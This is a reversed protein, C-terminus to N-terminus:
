DPVEVLGWYGKVSELALLRHLLKIDADLSLYPGTASLNADIPNLNISELLDLHYERIVELQHEYGDDGPRISANHPANTAVWLPVAGHTRAYEVLRGLNERSEHDSNGGIFSYVKLAQTTTQANATSPASLCLLITGITMILSAKITM